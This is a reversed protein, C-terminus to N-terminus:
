RFLFISRVIHSAGAPINKLIIGTFMSDYEIFQPRFNDGILVELPNEIRVTCFQPLPGRVIHPCSGQRRNSLRSKETSVTCIKPPATKQTSLFLPLAALFDKASRPTSPKSWNARRMLTVILSSWFQMSCTFDSGSLGLTYLVRDIRVGLGYELM